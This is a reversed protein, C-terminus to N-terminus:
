DVKPESRYWEILDDIAHRYGRQADASSLTNLIASKAQDLDPLSMPRKKRKKTSGPAMAREFKGCGSKPVADAKDIGNRLNIRAQDLASNLPSMVRQYFGTDLIRPNANASDVRM